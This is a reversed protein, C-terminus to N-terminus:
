HPKMRWRGPATKEIEPLRKGTSDFWTQVRFKLIELEDALEEVTRGEPGAAALLALIRIKLTRHKAGGRPSLSTTAPPVIDRGRSQPSVSSRSARRRRKGNM